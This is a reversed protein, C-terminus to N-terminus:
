QTRNKGLIHLRPVAATSIRRRRIIQLLHEIEEQVGMVGVHDGHVLRMQGINFKRSFVVGVSGPVAFVKVNGAVTTLDRHAAEDVV